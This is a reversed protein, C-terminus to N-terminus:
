FGVKGQSGGELLADNNSDFELVDQLTLQSLMAITRQERPMDALRLHQNHICKEVVKRVARGNGFYKNRRSYLQRFYSQLHATADADADIGENRLMQLAIEMLETDTYDAFNFKRDFRSKLGPNSELFENMRDPYGAVIVIMEGRMDEMRKLLTEIAERGFDQDGGSALAYAEDIFLVSGRASEIMENTKIATQGTFGAVLDARDCEILEGRELIGLAKYIKGIIRAVTTKGTGPNGMFVSHLSFKNITDKGTEQYFRVLKVLENVEHKVSSLGTMSKLEDIAEQLLGVDEPIHPKKRETSAFVKQVDELSITSIEDGSLESVDKRQMLRLGMNMKAEDIISYVFRANGFSRDRKRFGDVLKQYLYADLGEGFIISRKKVALEAIAYLEQPTYDPFEYYLNFRSKLGPNSDLFTKMERPYGAVIIALDGKGDSMEKLLIEIVERGYDKSDEGARALSYAEDIFLIGGRAKKIADKVKPATQGIYEGVIDARDVEHVHGKSLLGLRKYIQGLMRAITTKGTGPNGTFVAHISINQADAIGRDKRLKLFGLYQTYERVRQKISELGILEDLQALAQELDEPEQEDAPRFANFSLTNTQNPSLLAPEGEIEDDGTRFPVVGILTDMFVIELTYNDVFWTGKHDSGWGSTITFNEQDAAVKILESTKGKLQRADNYFYYFLEIYWERNLLNKATFEGWIYQTNKANFQTLYRRDEAPVNGDNGEYLRVQQISLYKNDTATVVGVDYVHFDMSGLLSGDIHAEWRYTGEAWFKGPEDNGWGERIYVINQDKLVVKEVDISCIENKKRKNSMSFAKINIKATWDEEDFKRNYFSLEAYMYTTEMRDFVRRYKKQGDALWETSSYAKLERFKYNVGGNAM